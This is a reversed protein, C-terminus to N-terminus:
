GLGGSVEFEERARYGMVMWLWGIGSHERVIESDKNQRMVVGSEDGRCVCLNLCNM